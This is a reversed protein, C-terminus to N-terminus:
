GPCSRGAVVPSVSFPLDILAILLSRGPFGFRAIAWAAAVGFLVNCALAIPAVTLTLLISHRTDPDAFPNRFYAGIGDSLATAFINVVPIVVLVGVVALVLLILSWRVWAADQQAARARGVAISRPRAAEANM